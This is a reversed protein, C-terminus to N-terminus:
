SRLDEAARGEPVLRRGKREDVRCAALWRRRLERKLARGSTGALSAAPIKGGARHAHGGGSGRLGSLTARVLGAADPGGGATRVSMVLDDAVLAACLVCRVAEYRILLDAVEGVIESGHARPLLCFAADGYLSTHHLARALDVFYARPLPASEIQAVWTPNVRDALWRLVSRDLRSHHAQSGRTETRIAYYLATALRASPEIKQERLYSGTISAAAAVTPRVDAFPLRHAPADPRLHHDIVAVPRVEEKTLLHNDAPFGCDVLIAATTKSVVLDHALEIPPDLVKILHRNEARVIDGGGVLRPTKGLRQQCLTRVAWGAAIADPDPNDHMVVVIGEHAGVARLLRDSRTPHLGTM